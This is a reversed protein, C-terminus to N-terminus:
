AICIIKRRGYRCEQESMCGKGKGKIGKERRRCRVGWVGRRVGLGWFGGLGWIYVDVGDDEEEKCFKKIKLHIM